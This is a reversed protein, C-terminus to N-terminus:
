AHQEGMVLPGPTRMLRLMLAHDVACAFMGAAGILFPTAWPALAWAPGVVHVVSMWLLVVSVVLWHLSVRWPDWMVGAAFVVALAFPVPSPVARPGVITMVVFSGFLVLGTLYGRARQAESARVDGYWRRHLRRLWLTVLLGAIYILPVPDFDGLPGAGSVGGLALAAWGPLFALSRRQILAVLERPRDPRALLEDNDM